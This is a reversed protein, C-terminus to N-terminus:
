GQGPVGVRAVDIRGPRKAPQPKSTTADPMSRQPAPLRVNRWDAGPPAIPLAPDAVRLPVDSQCPLVKEIDRPLSTRFHNQAFCSGKSTRQGLRPALALDVGNDQLVNGQVSDEAAPAQDSSTLLVGAGPHGTILNRALGDRRGGRVLVGVGFGEGRGPALRNANDEIVNGVVTTDQQHYPKEEGASVLLVGVRNARFSSRAVVVNGGSDSGEFGAMGREAVSDTVLSDCPRCNGIRFGAVGHGSALVHDITGGRSRLAEIGHLGNNAATVYSARWGNLQKPTDKPPSFVVGDTAYGRVTLNEVAVGDAHVTIGNFRAGGGGDLIVRNRDTGRIV